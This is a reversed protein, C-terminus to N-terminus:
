ATSSRLEKINGASLFVTLRGFMTQLSRVQYSRIELALPILQIVFSQNSDFAFRNRELLTALFISSESPSHKRRKARSLLRIASPRKDNTLLESEDRARSRLELRIRIMQPLRVFPSLFLLLSCLLFVSPHIVGGPFDTLCRSYKAVKESFKKNRELLVLLVLMYLEGHREM